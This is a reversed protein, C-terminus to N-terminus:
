SILKHRGIAKIGALSFQTIHEAFREALEPTLPQDLLYELDNQRVTLLVRCQSIINLECFLIGEETMDQGVIRRIIGQLVQRRPEITDHWVNKILGSPNLLERLYLRTFQGRDGQETFHKILFHIHTRLQEEPTRTLGTPDPEPYKANRYAHMWAEVYLSAKDHFYYNVAAVNVRAMRCIGAVTSAQYGRESFVSCAAELLNIYTEKGDERVPM